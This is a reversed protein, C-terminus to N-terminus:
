KKESRQHQDSAGEAIMQTTAADERGSDHEERGSRQRAAKRRASGWEDRRACNLPHSRRQENRPAKREDACGVGFLFAARRNACPGREAGYCRRDSGHGAAPDDRVAGPSPEEEEIQGDGREHDGQSAPV